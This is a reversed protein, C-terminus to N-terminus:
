DHHLCLRSGFPFSVLIYAENFAAKQSDRDPNIRKVACLQWQSTISERLRWASLFVTSFEGLGLMYSRNASYRLKLPQGFSPRPLPTPVAIAHIVEEPLSLSPSPPEEPAASKPQRKPKNPTPHPSTNRSSVLPSNFSITSNFLDSNSLFPKLAIESNSCYMLYVGHAHGECTETTRRTWSPPWARRQTQEAPRVQLVSFVLAPNTVSCHSTEIASLAQSARRRQLAVLDTESYVFGPALFPLLFVSSRDTFAIFLLAPYARHQKEIQIHPVM